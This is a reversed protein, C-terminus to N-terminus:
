ERAPSDPHLQDLEWQLPNNIIYARIKQLAAENRIIREYYNRQWVRGSTTARAQNIDKTSQYKFYAVVRGLTPSQSPTQGVNPTITKLTETQGQTPNFTEKPMSNALIVIGHIHNPMVVFADLAVSPFHEAIKEWWQVVIEGYANLWLTSNVIKGFLCERDQACITVFYAGAQSYDYDHLRISRRHHINPDYPM